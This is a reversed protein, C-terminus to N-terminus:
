ILTLFLGAPHRAQEAQSTTVVFRSVRSLLCLFMEIEQTFSVARAYIYSTVYSCTRLYIPNHLTAELKEM